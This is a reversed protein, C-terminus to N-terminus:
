RINRLKTEVENVVIKQRDIQDLIDRQDRVSRNAQREFKSIRRENRNIKRQNSRIDKQLQKTDTEHQELVIQASEGTANFSDKRQMRMEYNRIENRMELNDSKLNNIKRDNSSQRRGMKRLDQELSRLINQESRLEKEVADRYVELAYDRVFRSADDAKASMSESSGVFGLDDSLFIRVFIREPFSSVQAIVTLPSSSIKKVDVGRMIWEDSEQVFKQNKSFLRRPSLTRELIRLADPSTAQPIEVEFAPQLGQSSPREQMNVIIEEQAMSTLGALMLLVFILKNM